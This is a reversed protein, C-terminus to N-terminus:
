ISSTELTTLKLRKLKCNGQFDFVKFALILRVKASKQQTSMRAGAWHKEFFPQSVILGLTPIRIQMNKIEGPDPILYLDPDLEPDLDKGKRM